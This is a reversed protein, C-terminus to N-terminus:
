KCANFSPKNNTLILGVQKLNNGFQPNVYIPKQIYCKNSRQKYKAAILDSRSGVNYPNLVTASKTRKVVHSKENCLTPYIKKLENKYM